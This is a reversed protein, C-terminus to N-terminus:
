FKASVALGVTLPRLTYGENVSNIVPRQIVTLDDTLNKGYLSYELKGTRLGVEANLVSYAPNYFNPNITQFSGNSHGTVNFDAGIFWEGNGAVHFVYDTSFSGTWVPVFLVNDGPAATQLNNSATIYAHQADLNLHLSLGPLVRPKYAIEAEAGYSKADGVNSNYNGGCIPIIILEQIQSWQTYYTAANVTLTRDSNQAKLGLEYTWLYDPGYSKPPNTVGLEAFGLLCPVDNNPSTAGGFRVGKAASAYITSRDTLDYGVTLKPTFADFKATQYYPSTVGVNGLEYFGGGVEEFTEHAIVYRGGVGIHLRPLVDWDVQGFAAWQHLHNHDYIFYMTDNVWLNPTGTTLVPDSNLSHGYISQFAAGFGPAPEYDNHTYRQDTLYLGVTWKLPIGSEAPSPSTLRIEETPTRWSDHLYVPSAIDALIDDNQTQYQPYAPDLFYLAISGSNYSTGDKVHIEDRYFDSTVSTLTAFGLNKEITLSPVFLTDHNTEDVQKQITRDGLNTLINPSDGVDARQYFVAPVITWGGGPAYLGSLRVAVDNEDNVDKGTQQGELSYRNIWGAQNSQEVAGRLALTDTVIPLNVVDQVDYNPSGALSTYSVEGRASDQFENLVPQNSIFRVTGGESGAGYLTGQPGKLVEVRSMDLMKPISVGEYSDTTLLPVDDLYIGVTQSGVNSSIGRISVSDQGEGGATSFNLGPVIRTLDEVDDIHHEAIEGGDIVSIATPVDKLNELRKNATVVVEQLAEDGLDKGQDADAVRLDSHVTTPAESQGHDAAPTVVSAQVQPAVFLCAISLCAVAVAIRM